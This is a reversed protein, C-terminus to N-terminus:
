LSSALARHPATVQGDGCLWKPAFGADVLARARPARGRVPCASAFCANPILHLFCASCPVSPGSSVGLSALLQSSSSSSTSCALEPLLRPHTLPRAPRPLPRGPSSFLGRAPAPACLLRQQGPESPGASREPAGHAAGALGPPATGRASPAGRLRAALCTLRVPRTPFASGASGAGPSSVLSRGAGRSAASTSPPETVPGLWLSGLGPFRPPQYRCACTGPRRCWLENWM